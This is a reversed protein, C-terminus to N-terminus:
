KSVQCKRVPSCMGTQRPLDLKISLDGGIPDIALVNDHSSGKASVAM